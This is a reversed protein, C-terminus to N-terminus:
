MLHICNTTCIATCYVFLLNQRSTKLNSGCQILTGTVWRREFDTRGGFKSGEKKAEPKGEMAFILDQM